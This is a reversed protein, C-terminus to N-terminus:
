FSNFSLQNFFAFKSEINPHDTRRLMQFAACAAVELRATRKRLKRSFENEDHLKRNALMNVSRGSITPRRNGLTLGNLVSGGGTVSGGTTSLREDLDSNPEDQLPNRILNRKSSCKAALKGGSPPTTDHEANLNKRTWDSAPKDIDYLKLTPRDRSDGSSNPLTVRRRVAARNVPAFHAYYSALCEAAAQQVSLEGLTILQSAGDPNRVLRVYFRQRRHKIELLVLALVHLVNLCDVYNAAFHLVAAYPIRQAAFRREAIRVFFLLWFLAALLLTLSVLALKYAHYRPLLLRQRNSPAFLALFAIKLLALKVILTILVGDAFSGVGADMNVACDVLQLRPLLIIAIPTLYAFLFLLRIFFRQLALRVALSRGGCRQRGCDSLLASSWKGSGDLSKTKVKYESDLAFSHESTNGPLAFIM